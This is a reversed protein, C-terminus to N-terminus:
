QVIEIQQQQQQQQRKYAAKAIRYGIWIVTSIDFGQKSIVGIHAYIYEDYSAYYVRFCINSYHFQCM